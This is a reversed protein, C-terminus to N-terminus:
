NALLRRCLRQLVQVLEEDPLRDLSRLVPKLDHMVALGALQDVTPHQGFLAVAARATFADLREAVGPVSRVAPDAFDIPADTRYARVVEEAFGAIVRERRAELSFESEAATLLAELGIVREDLLADLIAVKTKFYYYVNAKRVGMADAIDQLSAAAFGQEAFLVRAADLVAQRTRAAQEARTMSGYYM